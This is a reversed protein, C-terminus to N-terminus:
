RVPGPVGAAVRVPCRDCLVLVVPGRGSLQADDVACASAAGVASRRFFAEVEPASWQWPYLDSFAALRRVVWVRGAITSAQLVRSRQQREWGELMADFVASEPDLLVVNGALKLAAPGLSDDGMAHQMCHLM